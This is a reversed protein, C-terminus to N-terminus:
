LILSKQFVNVDDATAFVTEQMDESSTYKDPQFGMRNGMLIAEDHVLTRCKGHSLFPNETISVRTKDSSEPRRRM